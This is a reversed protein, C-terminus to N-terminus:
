VSGSVVGPFVLRVLMWARADHAVFLLKSQICAFLEGASGLIEGNKVRASLGAEMNRSAPCDPLEVIWIPLWAPNAPVTVRVGLVPGTPGDAWILGDATVKDFPVVALEVRLM